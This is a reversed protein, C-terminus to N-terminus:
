PEKHVELSLSESGVLVYDTPIQRTILRHFSLALMKRSKDTLLLTKSPPLGPL